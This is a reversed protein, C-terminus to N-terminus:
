QLFWQQLQKMKRTQSGPTIVSLTLGVQTLALLTSASNGDSPLSNSTAIDNQKSQLRQLLERGASIETAKGGLSIVGNSLVTAQKALKVLNQLNRNDLIPIRQNIAIGSPKPSRHLLSTYKKFCLQSKLNAITNVKEISAAVRKGAAHVFLESARNRVLGDFHTLAKDYQNLAQLLGNSNGLGSSLGGGGYLFLHEPADLLKTDWLFEALGSVVGGGLSRVLSALVSHQMPTCALLPSLNLFAASQDPILISTRTTCVASTGSIHNNVSLLRSTFAQQDARVPCIVPIISELPAASEPYYLYNTM